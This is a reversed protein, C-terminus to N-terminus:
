VEEVKIVESLNIFGGVIKYGEVSIMFNVQGSVIYYDDAFFGTNNECKVFVFRNGKQKHLKFQKRFENGDM